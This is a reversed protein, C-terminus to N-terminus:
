EAAEPFVFLITKLFYSVNLYIREGRCESAMPFIRNNWVSSDFTRLGEAACNKNQVSSIHSGM